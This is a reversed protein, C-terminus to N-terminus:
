AIVGFMEKQKPDIVEYLRNECKKFYDEELEFGAYERDEMLAAVGVSAAGMFPDLIAGGPPCSYRVLRSVTGQALGTKEVLQRQTAPMANIILQETLYTLATRIARPLDPDEGPGMAYVIEYTSVGKGNNHENKVLQSAHWEGSALSRHVIKRISDPVAATQIQMEKITCPLMAEVARRYGFFERRCKETCYKGCGQAVRSPNEKFKTGCALCTCNVSGTRKTTM